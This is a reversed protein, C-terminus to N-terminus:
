MVVLIRRNINADFVNELSKQIVKITCLHFTTYFPFKLLQFKNLLYTCRLKHTKQPTMCKLRRTKFSFLMYAIEYYM